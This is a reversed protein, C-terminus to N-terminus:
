ATVSGLGLAVAVEATRGEAVVNGKDHYLRAARGLERGAAEPDGGAAAIRARVVALDAVINPAEAGRLLADAEAAAAAAEATRGAHLHLEARVSRVLVQSEIDDEAAASEARACAEAAEEHRGLAILAQARVGEMTSLLYREGMEELLEADRRLEREAAAHDGALMEVTSSDLATSAGLMSGGVDTLVTRARVYLTRAEDFGGRMAELQARACLALGETRHDGGSGAEIERCREIAEPVPMPGFVCALTLAGMNRREQRTDGALRACAIAREVAATAPGYALATAHVSGIIRWAKALGVQDGVLEFVRVAREAERLARAGWEGQEGYLQVLLRGLQAEAALRHDGTAQAAAIAGALVRDAEAFEGMDMLAEGLDPLLALRDPDLEPMLGVARRLLGAAAHMDGRAFARQGAGALREGARHGLERGHDDLPGLDALYAHAQELHYATIEAYEPAREGNVRDAWAVFREHMQARTRKLLRRYVADRVLIHEFQYSNPDGMVATHARIFRRREVSSLREPVHERDGETVLETVATRPFTLGAVAAPELVAREPQALRDLRAALLALISPPVDLDAGPAQEDLMAAMQEVFLPNGDSATVIREVTAPDVRDEGLLQAAMEAAAAAGLRELMIRSGSPGDPVADERDAYEPRATGVVLCPRRVREVVDAILELLTPEAWHLDDLVAVLPRDAALIEFLRRVGLFTEEVAFVAPVLGMASAVRDAAEVDGGALQLVKDRATATPDDDTIGAAARVAEAIPWFTIGEGYPLCRGRVVAASGTLGDTFERLLRSKGVGAEGIVTVLRGGEHSEAAAVAAWLQELEDARGILPTAAARERSALGVLRYAPVRESKGKLELPEVPEVEVADRVLAHTLAGLLTEMSPAAQELRAAVNVADGTALRQNGAAEDTVVEGTNVGTRNAMTVGYRRELDENLADLGARMDLAARVARLADDEHAQPLGFVAMVADGIFKEVTGGHREIAASMVAFYRGMVERLSEPDLKEGMATSGAVDSFLITVTKRVEASPAAQLPTGCFGCLRFRPPNEEGCAPCILV